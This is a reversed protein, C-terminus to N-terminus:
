TICAGTPQSTAAFHARYHARRILADKFQSLYSHTKPFDKKMRSEIIAKGDNDEDYPLIIELSASAHWRKMDRGRVLPRVLQAEVAATVSPYPNRGIDHCNEIILSAKQARIKRVWFVGSAGGSHVGIRARYPSQGALKPMGTAVGKPTISWASTLDPSIPIAELEEVELSAFTLEALRKKRPPFSFRSYPIPYQTSVESKTLVMSATRNTASDFPQFQTFDHVEEVKFFCGNPLQLRRFGQGGGASQFLTQTVIFGLRGQLKLYMDGSVYTMLVSIDDMGAGLRAKLGKQTLLGYKAWLSGMEGRYGAPLNRWNIWPPNGVIYDVQPIFLPAFSNKIIRAWVGNRDERDLRVLTQYLVQHLENESIPM